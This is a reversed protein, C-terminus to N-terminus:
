EQSASAVLSTVGEASSVILSFIMLLFTAAALVALAKGLPGLDSPKYGPRRWPEYGDWSVREDISVADKFDLVAEKPAANAQENGGLSTVPIADCTIRDCISLWKRYHRVLDNRPMGDLRLRVADIRQDITRPAVGLDLAIQKSTLGDAARELAERQKKTASEFIHFAQSENM